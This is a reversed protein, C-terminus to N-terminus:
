GMERGGLFIMCQYLVVYQGHAKPFKQSKELMIYTIEPKWFCKSYTAGRTDDVKEVLLIYFDKLLHLLKWNFKLKSLVMFTVFNGGVGGRVASKTISISLVPKWEVM